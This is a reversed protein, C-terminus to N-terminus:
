QYNTGSKFAHKCTHIYVYTRMLLTRNLARWYIPYNIFLSNLPPHHENVYRPFNWKISRSSIYRIFIRFYKEECSFQVDRENENCQFIIIMKTIFLYIFLNSSVKTDQRAEPLTRPHSQQFVCIAYYNVENFTFNRIFCNQLKSTEYISKNFSLFSWGHEM